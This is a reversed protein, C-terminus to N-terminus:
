LQVSRETSSQNSTEAVEKLFVRRSGALVMPTREKTLASHAVSAAYLYKLCEFKPRQRGRYGVGAVFISFCPLSPDKGETRRRRGAEGHSKVCERASDRDKLFKYYKGEVPPARIM